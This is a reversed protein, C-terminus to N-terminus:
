CHSEPENQGECELEDCAEAEERTHFDYLSCWDVEFYWCDKCSKM